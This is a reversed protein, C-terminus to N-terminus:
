LPAVSERLREPSWVLIVKKTRDICEALVDIWTKGVFRPMEWEDFFVRYGKDRLRRALARTWDKQASNYSLFIDYSVVGSEVAIAAQSTM